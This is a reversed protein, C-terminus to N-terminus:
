KRTKVFIADDSASVLASAEAISEGFFPGVNDVLVELKSGNSGWSGFM